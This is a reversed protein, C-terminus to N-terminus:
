NRYNSRRKEEVLEKDNADNITFLESQQDILKTLSKSIKDYHNTGTEYDLTKYDVKDKLYKKTPGLSMRITGSM